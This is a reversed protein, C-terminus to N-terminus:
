AFLYQYLKEVNTKETQTITDSKKSKQYTELFNSKYIPWNKASWGNSFHRAVKLLCKTQSLNHLTMVKNKCDLKLQQVDQDELFSKTNVSLFHVISTLDNPIDNSRSDIYFSEQLISPKSIFESKDKMFSFDLSIPYATGNIIVSGTYKLHDPTCVPNNIISLLVDNDVMEETDETDVDETHEETNKQFYKDTKIVDIKREVDILDIGYNQFLIKIKEIFIDKFQSGDFKFSPEKYFVVVDIDNSQEGSHLDRLLGGFITFDPSKLLLNAIILNINGYKQFCQSALSDM